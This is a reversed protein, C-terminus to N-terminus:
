RRSCSTRAPACPPRTPPASRTSSSSRRPSTPTRPTRSSSPSRARSRRRPAHLRGRPPEVDRRQARPGEPRRGRQGQPRTIDVDRLAAGDNAAPQASIDRLSASCSATPRHGATASSRARRGHQDVDDRRARDRPGRRPDDPGPRGRRGPLHRRRRAQVAATSTAHRVDPLPRRLQRERDGQPGPHDPRDRRRGLRRAGADTSDTAGQLLLSQARRVFDNSRAWRPSPRRRGAWARRRHQAPVARQRGPEPAPGDRAGHQVPRRAPAHDGQGLVGQEAHTALKESLSNLDSLVNRQVMSTTIRMVLGWREPGTSSSTSCRTWRPCPARPRRTPASSACWTPCRRTWRSARCARAATRSRTPSCRRTARCASPRTSTAASRPWSPRTPATSRRAAACSRSRSRSTTPAAAGTGTGRIVTSPAAQIARRGQDTSGAPTGYGFFTAATSATSRARRADQHLTDIQALYGDVMGGPTKGVALLGGLRAARTGTAPRRAPGPRPRDSSSRTPRHRTDRDVFSVNTPAAPSTRSRSRATASLQDILVDRRDMLDNPPDGVTISKSITKNLDALETAVKSIEGGPGAIAAYQSTPARGPRRGDALPRLPDLRDPRERDARAGAQRRATRRRPSTRGPTGSSPSSSTSATRARSPSRSSPATSRPPRRPGSTSTPTRPASSRTWSSTASAASARSTSAPASSPAPRREDGDSITLQQAPSAQLTAEQRSYGKTSANAINHGTTDLMRQQALLGRLSTQMGYFSSVPM